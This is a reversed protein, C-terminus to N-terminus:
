RALPLAGATVDFPAWFGVGMGMIARYFAEYVLWAPKRDGLVGMLMIWQRLEVEGNDLLASSSLEGLKANRGERMWAFIEHDFDLAINGLGYPGSYAPYPFGASFHSLGGSAYVAVRLSGPFSGLADRLARGFAFCRAPSPAPVHIANVFVPVVPVHPDCIM